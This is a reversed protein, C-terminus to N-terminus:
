LAKGAEVAAPSSAFAAKTKKADAPVETPAGTQAIVGAGTAGLWLAAVAALLGRSVGRM